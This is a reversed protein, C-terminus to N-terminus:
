RRTSTTSPRSGARPAASGTARRGVGEPVYSGVIVADAEAVLRRALRQLEDMSDYLRTACFVPNPLDRHAAYWPVDRELFVVEHGRRTLERLLGRYTTAHGNGWSSTISLGLVVLKM